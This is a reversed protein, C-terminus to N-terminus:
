LDSVGSHDVRVVRSEDDEDIQIVLPLTKGDVRRVGSVVGHQVDIRVVIDDLIKKNVLIVDKDPVSVVSGSKIGASSNIIIDDDVVVRTTGSKQKSSMVIGWVTRTLDGAGSHKISFM